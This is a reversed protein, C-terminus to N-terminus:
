DQELAPLWGTFEVAERHIVKGVSFIGIGTDKM